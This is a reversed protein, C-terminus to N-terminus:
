LVEFSYVLTYFADWYDAMEGEPWIMSILYTTENSTIIYDCEEWRADGDLTTYWLEGANYSQWTEEYEETYIEWDDSSEVILEKIGSVANDMPDNDRTAKDAYCDVRVIEVGDVDLFSVSGDGENYVQLTAPFQVTFGWEGDSYTKTDNAFAAPTLMLMLCLVTFFVFRIRM